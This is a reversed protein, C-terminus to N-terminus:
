VGAVWRRVETETSIFALPVPLEGALEERAFWRAAAVDDHAAPATNTACRPDAPTARYVLVFGQSQADQGDEGQNVMPYTAVLEHVAVALALEEDIERHLAAIPLEGADVYGGPLAWLGRGPHEIRAVVAVKPDPHAVFRCAPCRRLTKAGFQGDQLPTACYPCYQFPRRVM